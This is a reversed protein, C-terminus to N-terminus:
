SRCKRQLLTYSDCEVVVVVLITVNNDCYQGNCM